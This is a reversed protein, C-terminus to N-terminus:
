TLCTCFKTSNRLGGDGRENDFGCWILLAGKASSIPSQPLPKTFQLLPFFQSSLSLPSKRFQLRVDLSIGIECARKEKEREQRRLPFANATINTRRDSAGDLKVVLSALRDKVANFNSEYHLDSDISFTVNCM